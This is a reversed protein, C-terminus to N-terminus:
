VTISNGVLLHLVLLLREGNLHFDNKVRPPLLIERPAGGRRLFESGFKM